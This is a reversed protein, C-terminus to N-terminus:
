VNVPAKRINRSRCHSRMRMYSEQNRVVLEVIQALRDIRDFSAERQRYDFHATARLLQQLPPYACKPLDPNIRRLDPLRDSQADLFGHFVTMRQNQPVNQMATSFQRLKAITAFHYSQLLQGSFLEFLIAGLSYIDAGRSLTQTLDFGAATEPASYRLDGPPLSYSPALPLSMPDILHATGFDGLKLQRHRALFFNAPKLDRHCCGLHHFRRVCRCASRFLAIHVLFDKRDTPPHCFNSLDGGHLWEFAIYPYELVLPGISPVQATISLMAPPDLAQVFLPEGKLITTVLRGEREFCLRRYGDQHDVLFKLAAPQGTQEDIARFVASFYGDGGTSNVPTPSVYRNGIRGQASVIRILNPDNAL